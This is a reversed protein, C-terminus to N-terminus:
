RVTWAPDPVHAEEMYKAARAAIDPRVGALDTEEALDKSVNPKRDAASGPLALALMAAAALVVIRRAPM